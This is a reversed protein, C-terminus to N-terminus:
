MYCLNYICYLQLVVHGLFMATEPIYSYIGQMFAIVYVIVIIIIHL